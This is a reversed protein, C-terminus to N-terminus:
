GDAFIRILCFIRLADAGTSDERQVYYEQKTTHSIDALDFRQFIVNAYFSTWDPPQCLALFTACTFGMRLVRIEANPRRHETASRANAAAKSATEHLSGTAGLFASLLV